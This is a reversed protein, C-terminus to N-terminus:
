AHAPQRLAARQDPEARVPLSRAVSGRLGRRRGTRRLGRRHQRGFAATFAGFARTRGSTGSESYFEADWRGQVDSTGTGAITWDVNGRATAAVNGDAMSVLNLTLSWDPDNSFNTVTGSLMNNGFNAQLEADATFAGTGSQGNLPQYMAYQGIAPGRYTASGTLANFAPTDSTASYQLTAGGGTTADPAIDFFPLYSYTENERLDRRWWGFYAYSRDDIRANARDTTKFVWTGAIVTYRDGRRGVTCPAGTCEFHGSANMFSGSVRYTDLDNTLIGDDDPGDVEPMSDHNFAFTTDTGDTSPFAGSRILLADASTIGGMIETGANAADTDQFRTGGRFEQVLPVSVPGGRNDYVVLADDYVHGSNTHTTVTWGSASSRQATSFGWSPNPTILATQGHRPTVAVSTAPNTHTRTTLIRALPTGGVERRLAVRMGDLAFRADAQVAQDQLADREEEAAQREQEAQQRAQQEAQRAQQEALRQREAEAQAAEAALRRREAELRAEEAADAEAQLAEEEARDLGGGGVCAGLGILGAAVLAMVSGRGLWHRRIKNM